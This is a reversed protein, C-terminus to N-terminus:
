VRNLLLCYSHAQKMAAQLESRMLLWCKRWWWSVRTDWALEFERLVGGFGYRRDLERGGRGCPEEDRGPVAIDVEVVGVGLGAALQQLLELVARWDEVDAKALIVLLSECASQVPFYPPIVLNM